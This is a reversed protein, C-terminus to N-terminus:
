LISGEARSNHKQDYVAYIELFEWITLINGMFHFIRNEGQKRKMAFLKVDVNNRLSFFWVGGYL